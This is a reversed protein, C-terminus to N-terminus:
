LGLFDFFGSKKCTNPRGVDIVNSINHQEFKDLLADLGKDLKYHMEEPYLPYLCYFRVTKDKSMELEFFAEPLELAPMLLM